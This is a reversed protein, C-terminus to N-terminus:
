DSTIRSKASAYANTLYASDGFTKDVQDKMADAAIDLFGALGELFAATTEDDQPLMRDWEEMIHMKKEDMGFVHEVLYQTGEDKTPLDHGCTLLSALDKYLEVIVRFHEEVYSTWECQFTQEFSGPVATDMATQLTKLGELVAHVADSYASDALRVAQTAAAPTTPFTDGDLHSCLQIVPELAKLKWKTELHAARHRRFTAESSAGSDSDQRRVQEQLQRHLSDRDKKAKLDTLPISDAVGTIAEFCHRHSDSLPATSMYAACKTPLDRVLKKQEVYVDHQCFKALDVQKLSCQAIAKNKATKLKSSVHDFV